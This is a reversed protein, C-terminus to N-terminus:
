AMMKIIAVEGKKWDHNRLRKDLTPRSIGLEYALDMKPIGNSLLLLVKNTIKEM